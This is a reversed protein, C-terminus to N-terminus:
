ELSVWSGNGSNVKSAVLNALLARCYFIMELASSYSSECFGMSRCDVWIWLSRCLGGPWRMTAVISLMVLQKEMYMSQNRWGKACFRGDYMLFLEWKSSMSESYMQSGVYRHTDRYTVDRYVEIGWSTPRLSCNRESSGRMLGLCACKM